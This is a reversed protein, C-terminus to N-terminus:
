GFLYRPGDFPIKKWVGDEGDRAKLVGIEAYGHWENTKVVWEDHAERYSQEPENQVLWKCPIAVSLLGDSMQKIIDGGHVDSDRVRWGERKQSERTVQALLIVVIELEKALDKARIAVQAIREIENAILKPNSSKVLRIHDIAIAVLKGQRKWRRAKNMIRSMTYKSDDEIFYPLDDLDDASDLMKTYDHDQFEGRRMRITSIGTDEAMARKAIEKEEMELSFLGITPPRGSLLDPQSCARRLIQCAFSTKGHGSRGVLTIVNGPAMPGLHDDIVKVGTTIGDARQNKFAKAIDVLAKRAAQGITVDSEAQGVDNELNELTQRTDLLIDDPRIKSERNSKKISDALDELKRRKWEDLVDGIFDKASSYTETEDLIMSFKTRMKHTESAMEPLRSLLLTLTMQKREHCISSLAAFIQQHLPYNFHDVRLMESLDWFEDPFRFIGALVAAESKENAFVKKIAM